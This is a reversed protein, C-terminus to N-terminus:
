VVEFVIVGDYSNDSCLITNAVRRWDSSTRLFGSNVESRKTNIGEILSYEWQSQLLFNRVISQRPRVVRHLEALLGGFQLKWDLFICWLDEGGKEISGPNIRKKYIWVPIFQIKPRTERIHHFLAIKYPLVQKFRLLDQEPIGAKRLCNDVFNNAEERVEHHLRVSDIKGQNMLGLEAERRIYRAIDLSDTPRSNGPYFPTDFIDDPALCGWLRLESAWQESWALVEAVSPRKFSRTDPWLGAGDCEQSPAM